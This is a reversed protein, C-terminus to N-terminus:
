KGKDWDERRIGAQRLIRSILDPSIDKKHPNPITLGLEGKTMYPHGNEQFPGEFGFARLRQVLARNSISGLKPM